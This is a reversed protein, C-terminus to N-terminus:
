RCLPIGLTLAPVSVVPTDEGTLRVLFPETGFRRVGEGIAQGETSYSGIVEGGKILLHRNLYDRMLAEKNQEYLQIEEGLLRGKEASPATEQHAAPPM